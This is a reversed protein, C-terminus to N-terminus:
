ALKRKRGKAELHHLCPLDHYPGNRLALFRENALGRLASVQRRFGGLM